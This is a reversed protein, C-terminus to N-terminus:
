WEYGRRAFLAKIARIEDIHWNNYKIRYALTRPAMGMEYAFLNQNWGDKYIFFKVRDSVTEIKLKRM